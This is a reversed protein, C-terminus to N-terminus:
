RQRPPPVYRLHRRHPCTSSHVMTRGKPWCPRIPFRHRTGEVQECTEAGAQNSNVSINILYILLPINSLADQLTHLHSLILINGQSNYGGCLGRDGTVLVITVKKVDRVELIPLEVDQQILTFISNFKHCLLIRIFWGRVENKCAELVTKFVMQLQGILPRTKLVAEQARRVRAAAVLRM